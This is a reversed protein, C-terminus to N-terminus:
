WAPGAEYPRFRGVHSPAAHPYAGRSATLGRALGTRRGARREAALPCGPAEPPGSGYLVGPVRGGRRLTSPVSRARTGRRMQLGEKALVEQVAQREMRADFGAQIAEALEDRMEREEDCQARGTRGYGRCSVAFAAVRIREKIAEATFDARQGRPGQGDRQEQGDGEREPGRARIRVAIAKM